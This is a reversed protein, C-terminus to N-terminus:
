SLLFVHEKEERISSIQAIDAFFICNKSTSHTLSLEVIHSLLSTVLTKATVNMFCVGFDSLIFTMECLAQMM